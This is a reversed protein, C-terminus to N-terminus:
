ILPIVNMSLGFFLFVRINFYLEFEVHNGFNFFAASISRLNEKVRQQKVGILEDFSYIFVYYRKRDSRKKKKM